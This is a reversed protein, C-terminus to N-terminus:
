LELILEPLEHDMFGAKRYISDGDKSAHLHLFSIGMERAENKLLELIASGIGMKRYSPITYMNMIYGMRGNSISGYRPAVERIEMGGSAIPKGNHYALYAIFRGGPLADKLYNEINSKLVRAEDDDEHDKYDNLFVMRLDLVKYLDDIDAKRFSIDDM